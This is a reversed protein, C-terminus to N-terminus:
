AKVDLKRISDLEANIAQLQAQIMINDVPNMYLGRSYNHLLQAQLYHKQLTLEQLRLSVLLSM